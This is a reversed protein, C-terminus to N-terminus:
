IMALYDVILQNTLGGTSLHTTFNQSNPPLPEAQFIQLDLGFKFYEAHHEKLRLVSQGSHFSTIPRGKRLKM